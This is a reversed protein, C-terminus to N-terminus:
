SKAPLMRWVVIAMVAAFVGALIVWTPMRFAKPTLGTIQFAIEKGSPIDSITHYKVEAGTTTTARSRLEGLGKVEAAGLEAFIVMKSTPLTVARAIDMTESTIDLVYKFAVQFEGPPVAMTDYFGNETFVLAEEVFYSQPKFDRFGKPLRIEVVAGPKDGEEEPSSVAMTSSNVLQMYETFVLTDGDTKIMLHHMQISLHSKDTSIDYVPVRASFESKIPVLAVTDGSFMMNSHKAHPRAAIKDGTPVNEFIAKGNAAVEGELTKLLNGHDYIQVLVQDGTIPTGNESDNVVEVTLVTQAAGHAEAFAFSTPLVISAIAILTLYRKM